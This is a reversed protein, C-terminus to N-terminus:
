EGLGVQEVPFELGINFFGNGVRGTRLGRRLDDGGRDGIAGGLVSNREAHILDPDGLGGGARVDLSAVGHADVQEEVGDVEM